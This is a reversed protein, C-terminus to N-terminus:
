IVTIPVAVSAEMPVAPIGLTPSTVKVITNLETPRGTSAIPIIMPISRIKIHCTFAHHNHQKPMLTTAQWFPATSLSTNLLASYFYQRTYTLKSETHRRKKHPSPPRRPPVTNLTVIFKSFLCCIVSSLLIISNYATQM